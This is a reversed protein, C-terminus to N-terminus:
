KGSLAGFTKKISNDLAKDIETEEADLSKLQSNINNIEATMEEEKLNCLKIEMDIDTNASLVRSFNEMNIQGTKEDILSSMQSTVLKAKENALETSEQTMKDLRAQMIILRMNLDSKMQTILIKRSNFLLFGM